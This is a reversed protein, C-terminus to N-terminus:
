KRIGFSGDWNSAAIRCRSKFEHNCVRCKWEQPIIPQEIGAWVRLIYGIDANMKADGPYHVPYEKLLKGTFSFVRLWMQRDMIEGMERLVPGLVWGYMLLQFEAQSKKWPPYELSGDRLEMLKETAKNEIIQTFALKRMDPANEDGSDELEEERWVVTFDDPHARIEINQTEKGVAAYGTVPDIDVQTNDSAFKFVRPFYFETGAGGHFEDKNVWGKKRAFTELKEFLMVESRSKPRARLWEDVRTGEDMPNIMGPKRPPYKASVGHITRLTSEEACYYHRSFKHVRINPPLKM